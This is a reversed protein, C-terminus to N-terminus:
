ARDVSRWEQIANRMLATVSEDEDEGVDDGDGDNNDDDGDNDDGASEGKRDDTRLTPTFAREWNECSKILAEESHGSKKYLVVDGRNGFLPLLVRVFAKSLFPLAHMNPPLNELMGVENAYAECGKMVPNLRLSEINGGVCKQLFELSCSKPGQEFRYGDPSAILYKPLKTASKAASNVTSERGVHDTTAQSLLSSSPLPELSPEESPKTAAPTGTSITQPEHPAIKSAENISAKRHRKSPVSLLKNNDGDRANSDSSIDHRKRNKRTTSM